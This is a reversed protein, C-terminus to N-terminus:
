AHLRLRLLAVALLSVYLEDPDMDRPEGLGKIWEWVDRRSAGGPLRVDVLEESLGDPLPRQYVVEPGLTMSEASGPPNVPTTPRRLTLDAIRPRYDYSIPSEYPSQPPTGPRRDSSAPSVSILESVPDYFDM